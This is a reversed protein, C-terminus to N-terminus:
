IMTHLWNLVSFAVLVITFDLNTIGNCAYSYAAFIIM